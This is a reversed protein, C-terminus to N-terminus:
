AELLCHIVDAATYSDCGPKVFQAVDVADDGATLLPAEIGGKQLQGIGITAMLGNCVCKRGVVDAENGGKRVYAAM